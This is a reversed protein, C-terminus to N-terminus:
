KSLLADRIPEVWQNKATDYATFGDPGESFYWFARAFGRDDAAKSVARTWAAREDMRPNAKGYTGYEGLFIPRNNAKSWAAVKDFDGNIKGVEEPTGKWEIDHLAAVEAGAWSAGQHTFHFPDYYHFTVIIDKEPLKLLPLDNLSNWHTPGVIINRTPNTERVIAILDPLWANWIKDDVKDHPENLLEFIVNNPANKYHESLEYWVNPLIVACADADKACDDFDHEDIIVNLKNRIAAEVIDDM